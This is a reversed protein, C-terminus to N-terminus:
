RVSCANLVGSVLVLWPDIQGSVVARRAAATAKLLGLVDNPKWLRVEPIMHYKCRNVSVNLANAIQDANMGQALMTSVHLWGFAIKGEKETKTGMVWSEISGSLSMVPDRISKQIRDLAVVVAKRNRHELAEKFADYSVEGIPARAAKVDAVDITSSGRAEAHLASKQMEFSLFGLDTGSRQVLAKALKDDMPRGLRKAETMCFQVAFDPLDWWNDPLPFIQHSKKDLTAIFKGFKSNGKPDGDISLLLTASPSPDKLHAELAALPAKEPNNVVVLVPKGDGFMSASQHVASLFAQANAGDVSQIDWGNARQKAVTQSIQRRRAFDNTGSIAFLTPAAM